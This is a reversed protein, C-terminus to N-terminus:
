YRFSASLSFTNNEFESDPIVSSNNRHAYSASLQVASSLAYGAGLSQEYYDDTRTLYNLARYTVAANLSLQDTLSASGSLNITSTKQSQGQPTTAFDRSLGLNLSAKPTVAYSFSSDIGLDGRSSGKGDPDRMNYGIRFNGSLKPTFEGRAGVNFFHDTTDGGVQEDTKRYQYGFSLDTKPSVKYFINVPVTYTDSNSYGTAKYHVRGYSLGSGISTKDSVNVEGDVAVSTSDRKTLGRIDVTNQNLESFGASFSVKAKGDDYNANFNFAPLQSNLSNNDSYSSFDWGASLSGKIQANKGFELVLSPSATFVTDSVEKNPQGAKRTQNTSLYINDDARVGVSGTIFLEAGDGIALFPAANAVGALIMMCVFLRMSNKM